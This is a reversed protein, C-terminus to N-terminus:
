KVKSIMSSEVIPEDVVNIIKFGGEYSNVVISNEDYNRIDIGDKDWKSDTERIIEKGSDGTILDIVKVSNERDIENRYAYFLRNGAIALGTVRDAVIDEVLVTFSYNGDGEGLDIYGICNKEELVFFLHNYVFTLFVHSSVEPRISLLEILDGNPKVAVISNNDVNELGNSRAAYSIVDKLEPNLENIIFVYDTDSKVEADRAQKKDCGSFVLLFCMASVTIKGLSLLRIRNNKMEKM